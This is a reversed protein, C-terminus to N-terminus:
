RFNKALLLKLNEFEILNKIVIPPFRHSCDNLLNKKQLIPVMHAIRLLGKAFALSYDVCEGGQANKM